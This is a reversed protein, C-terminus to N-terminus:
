PWRWMGRKFKPDRVQDALREAEALKAAMALEVETIREYLAIRVDEGEIDALVVGYSDLKRQDAEHARRLDNIQRKLARQSM